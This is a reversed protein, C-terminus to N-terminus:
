GQDKRRVARPHHPRDRPWGGACLHLHVAAYWYGTAPGHHSSHHPWPQTSVSQNVWSPLVDSMTRGCQAPLCAPLCAGRLKQGHGPNSAASEPWEGRHPSRVREPSPDRVRGGHAAHGSSPGPLQAPLCTFLACDLTHTVHSIARGSGVCSRLSAACPAPTCCSPLRGPELWLCCSLHPPPPSTLHARLM